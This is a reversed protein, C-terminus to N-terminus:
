RPDKEEAAALRRRRRVALFDADTASLGHVYNFNGSRVAALEAAQAEPYGPAQKEDSLCPMCLVDTNFRSMTSVWLAGGCRSCETPYDRM